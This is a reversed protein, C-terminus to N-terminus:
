TALSYLCASVNRITISLRCQNCLRQVAWPFKSLPSHIHTVPDQHLTCLTYRGTRLLIQLVSCIAVIQPARHLCALVSTAPLAPFDLEGVPSAGRMLMTTSTM